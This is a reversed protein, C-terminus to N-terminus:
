AIRWQPTPYCFGPCDLSGNSERDIPKGRRTRASRNKGFQGPAPLRSPARRSGAPVVTAPRRGMRSARAMRGAIMAGRDRRVRAMRVTAMPNARAMRHARAAIRNTGARRARARIVGAGTAMGMRRVRAMRGAIMAGRDLRVRAMRVTAMPNARATRGTITADRGKQVRAKRVIEMRAPGPVSLVGPTM